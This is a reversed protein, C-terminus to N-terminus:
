NNDGKAAQEVVELPLDLARAIIELSLGEDIFKPVSKLKGELIGEQKGELIGQLKGELIGEQKGELIGELKAEQYVKTQKLESLGFMAEIEKRSKEPLKYVFITKILDILKETVVDDTLEQKAQEILGKARGLATREQEMILKVVGLGLNPEESELEDLYIRQVTPLSLLYAFQFNELRETSRRPYIVVVNWPSRPQYQRLYLFLESFIRYYLEDDPQFQVEVLYFPKDEGETKPLFLGDIRFALQKVERSTFQYDDAECDDGEILSFFISPFELFLRYFISDTKM